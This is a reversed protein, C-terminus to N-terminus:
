CANEPDSPCPDVCNVLGDLDWDADPEGCGCIGPESKNSDEPCLDDPDCVGDNDDDYGPGYPCCYGEYAVTAGHLAAFCANSHTEDDCGCVPDFIMICVEPMVQCTGNGATGCQAAESFQCYDGEDCFDNNQCGDCEFQCATVNPYLAVGEPIECGFVMQCETGFVGAGLPMPACGGWDTGTLDVCSPEVPCAGWAGLLMALDGANVIGSGDLDAVCSDCPGWAGLLTALDAANVTGSGDIDAPCAANAVMSVTVFGLVVFINILSKVM